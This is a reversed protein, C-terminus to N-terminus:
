SLLVSTFLDLARITWSTSYVVALCDVMYSFAWESEVFGVGLLVLCNSLRYLLLNNNNEHNDVETKKKKVLAGEFMFWFGVSTVDRFWTVYRFWYALFYCECSWKLFLFVSGVFALSFWMKVSSGCDSKIIILVSTMCVGLVMSDFVNKKEKRILLYIEFHSLFVLSLWVM